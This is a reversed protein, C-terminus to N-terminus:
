TWLESRIAEPWATPDFGHTRLLALAIRELGFGVCASHAVAGDHTTIAFNTGFHDQHYNSSVVATASEEPGYLPVEIEFKLTEERQNAALMRGARGFFPDTAVVQRADLGLRLMADLGRQVWRDRHEIALEPPGVFVYERQRFSQMRAPDHSPEHRYCQTLVDLVRGGAPLTGSVAPYAPHCAAPVLMTQAPVLGAAWDEGAAHQALLASHERDGGEFTSVVGILNPFSALYDTREFVQGAMVPPPRLVWADQDAGLRTALADVALVVGEFVGSRLYLGPVGADVLVGADLLEQRFAARRNEAGTSM